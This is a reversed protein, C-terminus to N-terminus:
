NEENNDFKITTNNFVYRMTHEAGQKLAYFQIAKSHPPTRDLYYDMGKKWGYWFSEYAPVKYDRAGIISINIAYQFPKGAKMYQLTSEKIVPALSKIREELADTM